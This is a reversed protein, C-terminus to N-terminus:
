SRDDVVTGEESEADLLMDAIDIFQNITATWVPGWDHWGGFRASHKVGAGIISDLFYIFGPRFVPDLVGGAPFAGRVRNFILWATGPISRDYDFESNSITLSM